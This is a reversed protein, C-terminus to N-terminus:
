WGQPHPQPGPVVILSVVGPVSAALAWQGWTIETGTLTFALKASLPNPAMARREIHPTGDECRLLVVVCNGNPLFIRYFIKEEPVSKDL